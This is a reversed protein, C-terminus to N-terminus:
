VVYVFKLVYLRYILNPQVQVHARAPLAAPQRCGGARRGHAPRRRVPALTSDAFEDDAEEDDAGKGAEKSEIGAYNRRKM